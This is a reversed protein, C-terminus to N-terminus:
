SLSTDVENGPHRKEGGVLCLTSHPSALRQFRLIHLMVILLLSTIYLIESLAFVSIFIKSLYFYVLFADIFLFPIRM